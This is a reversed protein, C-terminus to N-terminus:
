KENIMSVANSRVREIESKSFDFDSRDHDNSHTTFLVRKRFVIFFKSTTVVFNDTM